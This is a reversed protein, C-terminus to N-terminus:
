LFTASTTSSLGLHGGTPNDEGFFVFAAIVALIAFIVLAVWQISASRNTKPPQSSKTAM